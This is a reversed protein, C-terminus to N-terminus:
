AAVSPPNTAVAQRLSPFPNGNAPLNLTGNAAQGKSALLNVMAKFADQGTKGTAGTGALQAVQAAIGPDDKLLNTYTQGLPAGADNPTVPMHAIIQDMPVGLYDNMFELFMVGAANGDTSQDSQSNDNIWDPHGDQWWQQTVASNFGPVLAMEPALKYALVRSLGEGDTQGPNASGALTEFSETAEAAYLATSLYQRGTTAGMAALTLRQVHHNARVLSAILQQRSERVRTRTMMPSPTASANRTHVATALAHESQQQIALAQKIESDSIGKLRPDHEDTVAFLGHPGHYPIPPRLSDKRSGTASRSSTQLGSGSSYNGTANISDVVIRDFHAQDSDNIHFAGYPGQASGSVFVLSKVNDGNPSQFTPLQLGGYLKSLSDYVYDVNSGGGEPAPALLEKASPAADIDGQLTGQYVDAQGEPSRGLYVAGDPPIDSSGQIGSTPDPTQQAPGAPPAFAKSTTTALAKM